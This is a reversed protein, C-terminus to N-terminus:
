GGGSLQEARPNGVVASLRTPGLIFVIIAVDADQDHDTLYATV